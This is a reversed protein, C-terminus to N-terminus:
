FEIRNTGPRLQLIGDKPRVRSSNLVVTQYQSTDIVFDCDMNAPITIIFLGSEKDKRFEAVINGRITPVSIHSYSLRSLQPRITAKSYGPLAPSIGWLFGPIINAPAAGWAHNWDSNPKYKMDWAEMTMTSGSKIMNWWSRDHTATLLSLAYDAEGARFLGELLFQAGYVSCAMGRSKIFAIVSSLHEPPVLDFALAMMNAHLSSHESFEGDLYVGRKKDFLKENIVKKVKVAQGAYIASDVPNGLHGALESMLVLNRYYFANVVTNIERMDYGDREGEATALKWGTDKQAPPWDVIDRIREKVNSFGLSAMIEDNVASSSILGDPRALASLTKYQLERYYRAMSESNGTHMFDNHFMLVTQLIWETPWTPHHIFYENTRRGMSYERDTYYHGLQNIYADAEYPIRERDGDIYIGTFSTAKITYKSIDWIRNLITDSSIFSSSSDDFYHWLAKQIIKDPENELKEIECYRFPSVVGFSDPLHIAAPGTNREDPAIEAVYRTKGPEVPL